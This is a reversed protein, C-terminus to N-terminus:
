ARVAPRAPPPLTPRLRNQSVARALGIPTSLEVLRARRGDDAASQADANQRVHRFLGCMVLAVIAVVPVGFIGGMVGWLILHGDGDAGPNLPNTVGCGTWYGVADEPDRLALTLFYVAAGLCVFPLAIMIGLIFWFLVKKLVSGGDAERLTHMYSGAERCNFFYGGGLMGAFFLLVGFGAWDGEPSHSAVARERSVCACYYYSVDTGCTTGARQPCRRTSEMPLRAGELDTHGFKCSLKGSEVHALGAEYAAMDVAMVSGDPPRLFEPLRAASNLVSTSPQNSNRCRTEPICGARARVEQALLCSSLLSTVGTSRM